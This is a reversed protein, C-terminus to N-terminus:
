APAASRLGDAAAQEAREAEAGPSGRGPEFFGPTWWLGGDHTIALAALGPRTPVWTRAAAGLVYAATATADVEALRPGTVTISALGDAQRGTRPDLIHAGRESAGSTAMAFGVGSVVAALQGPRAPDAVGLRWPTGDGADGVTQIDGGGNVCHSGSGAEVLMDSARQVAWGKVYGSPDLRGDPYASFAGGSDARLRECAELVEAVQAPAEALAIEGRRLRSLPSDPRYTSFTADAWHLWAVARGLAARLRDPAVRRDRLDFSVVTGMVPEVHQLVSPPRGGPRTSM